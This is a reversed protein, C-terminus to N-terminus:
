QPFTISYNTIKVNNIIKNGYPVDKITANKFKASAECVSFSVYPRSIGAVWNLQSVASRHLRKVEYSLSNMKDKTGDIQLVIETISSIYNNQNISIGFGSDQVLEIGTYTFTEIEECGFQFPHKIKYIINTKFMEDGGWIM